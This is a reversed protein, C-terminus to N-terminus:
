SYPTREFQDHVDNVRTKDYEEVYNCYTLNWDAREREREREIKLRIGMLCCRPRFKLVTQSDYFSFM